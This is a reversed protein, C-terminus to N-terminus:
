LLFCRFIKRPSDMVNYIRGNSELQECLKKYERGYGQRQYYESYEKVLSGLIWKNTLVDRYM